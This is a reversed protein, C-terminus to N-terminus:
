MTPMVIPEEDEDQVMDRIVVAAHIITTRPQGVDTKLEPTTGNESGVTIDIAPWQDPCLKDTTPAAM